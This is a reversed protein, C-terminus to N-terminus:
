ALADERVEDINDGSPKKERGAPVDGLLFCVLSELLGEVRALM